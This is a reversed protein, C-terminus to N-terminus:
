GGPQSPTAGPGGELWAHVHQFVADRGYDVTIIHGAGSTLVLRKEEAGLAAMARQAVRPTIRNDERSQIVLTRVAVRPLARRAEAALLALEHLAHGTTARYALNRTREAPDHISRPSSARIGAAHRPWAWHLSAAARIYAPMHLYPALLVLSSLDRFEDALLVALAGGMSLGVLAVSGYRARMAVLEVRAGRLWDHRTSADFAGLSRGHGPLLPARVGYGRAYLDDALYHLTQPTDGFGHLLLVGTAALRRRDITEAGPIIAVPPATNPATNAVHNLRLPAARVEFLSSRRRVIM